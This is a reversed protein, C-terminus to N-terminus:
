PFSLSRPIQLNESHVRLQIALTLCHSINNLFDADATGVVEQPFDQSFADALSYQLIVRLQMVGGTGHTYCLMGNASLKLKSTSIETDGTEAAM